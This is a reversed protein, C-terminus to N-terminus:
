QAPRPRPSRQAARPAFRRGLPAFRRFVRAAQRRARLLHTALANRPLFLKTALSLAYCRTEAVRHKRARRHARAGAGAAVRQRLTFIAIIAIM